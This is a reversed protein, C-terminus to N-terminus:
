FFKTFGKHRPTKTALKKRKKIPPIDVTFSSSMQLLEAYSITLQKIMSSRSIIPPLAERQISNAVGLEKVIVKPINISCGADIRAM